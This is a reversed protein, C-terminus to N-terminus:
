LQYIQSYRGGTGCTTCFNGSTEGKIQSTQLKKCLNLQEPVIGTFGFTDIATNFMM